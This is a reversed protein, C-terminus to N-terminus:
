KNSHDQDRVAINEDEPKESLEEHLPNTRTDAKDTKLIEAKHQLPQHHEEAPQEKKEKDKNSLM